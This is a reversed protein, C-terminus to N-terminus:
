VPFHQQFAESKIGSNGISLSALALVFGTWSVLQLATDGHTIMRGDSDQRNYSKSENLVKRGLQDVRAGSESVAHAQTKVHRCLESRVFGVSRAVAQLLM